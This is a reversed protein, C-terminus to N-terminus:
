EAPEVFIVANTFKSIFGVLTTHLYFNTFEGEANHKSNANFRHQHLKVGRPDLMIGYVGTHKEIVGFDKLQKMKTPVEAKSVQFTGALVDVDVVPLIDSGKLYMTVNPSIAVVEGLNYKENEFETLETHMTKVKKTFAEGTATDVPKALEVIQIRTETNAPIKDVLVGLLQRKTAFMFLTHSDYLRKILYAFLASAEAGGLLAKEYKNDDITVKFTKRGLTKSYAAQSFELRDPALDTKGDPDHDKAMALNIFYEEITTGYPLEEADLEPLRDAFDSDLMLQKGIKVVLKSISERDIGFEDGDIMIKDGVVYQSVLQSLGLLTLKAM